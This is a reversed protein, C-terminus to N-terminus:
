DEMPNSVDNRFLFLDQVKLSYSTNMEMKSDPDSVVGIDFAYSV